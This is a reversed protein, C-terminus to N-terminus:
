KGTRFAQDLRGEKRAQDIEAFKREKYLKQVEERTMQIKKSGVDTGRDGAGFDAKHEGRYKILEDASAEIEAETAGTLLSAPVGKRSAIESRTAKLEAEAAKREAAEARETAKQIDTKSADKLTDLEQAKAYNEKARDEHKRALAKWKEIEAKAAAGSDGGTDTTADPKASEDTTTDTTTTEDAM